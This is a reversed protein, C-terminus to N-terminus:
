QCWETVAKRAKEIAAARQTADMYSRGTKEDYTYAPAISELQSLNQKAKECNDRKTKAEQAEKQKKAENEAASAQRKKYELEKEQWSKSSEPITSPPAQNPIALTTESKTKDSAPQDSYHVKGQEDVWKYLEANVPTASLLLVTLGLLTKLSPVGFLCAM